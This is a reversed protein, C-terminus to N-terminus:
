DGAINCGLVSSKQGTVSHPTQFGARLSVESYRRREQAAKLFDQPAEEFTVKHDQMCFYYAKGKYSSSISLDGSSKTAAPIAAITGARRPADM